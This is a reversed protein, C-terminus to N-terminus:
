KSQEVPVCLHLCGGINVNEVQGEGVGKDGGGHGELASVVHQIRPGEALHHALDEDGNVVVVHEDADEGEGHHAHVAVHCNAVRDLGQVEAGRDFGLHDVHADPDQGRRRPDRGKDQAARLRLATLCLEIQEFYLVWKHTGTIIYSNEIAQQEKFPQTPVCM